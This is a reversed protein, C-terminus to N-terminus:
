DISVPDTIGPIEPPPAIFSGGPISESVPPTAVNPVPPADPLSPVAPPATLSPVTSVDPVPPVISPIEPAPAITGTSVDGPDVPPPVSGFEPVPAPAAASLKPVPGDTPREIVMINPVYGVDGSDLEVKVYTGKSSIVKLPTGSSLVKDARANGKPIKSFFTASNMSTEVWQGAHYSPSNPAVVASKQKANTKKKSRSGPSNLPDFSSDPSIPQKLNKLNQVSGCSALAFALAGLTLLSLSKMVRLDVM